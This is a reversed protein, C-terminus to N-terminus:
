TRSYETKYKKETKKERQKATKSIEIKIDELEPIRKEAMEVRSILGDLINNMETITNKIQLM